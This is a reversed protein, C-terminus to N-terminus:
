THHLSLDCYDNKILDKIYSPALGHLSQYVYTLIKFQTRFYVHLWHLDSPYPHFAGTEVNEYCNTSCHKPCTTNKRPYAKYSSISFMNRYGLRATIVANVMTKCSENTLFRQIRGINWIQVHCDLICTQGCYPTSLFFEGLNKVCPVSEIVHDGVKLQSKPLHKQHQGHKTTYIILETKDQNLKLLNSTMWSWSSIDNICADLRSFYDNWLRIIM